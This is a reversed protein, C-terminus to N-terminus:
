LEVVKGTRASAYTADLVRMNIWGELGGPVPTQGSIFGTGTLAVRLAM